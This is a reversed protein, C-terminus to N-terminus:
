ETKGHTIFSKYETFVHNFEHVIDNELTDNLITSVAELFVTRGEIQTGFDREFSEWNDHYQEIMSRMNHIKDAAAIVLAEASGDQLQAVYTSKREDYNAVKPESVTAVIAAVEAGFDNTLEQLTYDTDEITDHLLAAVVATENDTYENVIFAVAILHSIYPVPIDGKRVQDTHLISAAKIAQEISYSYM